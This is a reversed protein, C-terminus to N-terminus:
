DILGLWPGELATLENEDEQLARCLAILFARFPLFYVSGAM